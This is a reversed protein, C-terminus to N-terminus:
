KVLHVLNQQLRQEMRRALLGNFPVSGPRQRRQTRSHAFTPPAPFPKYKPPPFPAYMPPSPQMYEKQNLGDNGQQETDGPREYTDGSYQHNHSAAGGEDYSAVGEANSYVSNPQEFSHQDTVLGTSALSLGANARGTSALSERILEDVLAAQEFRKGILAEVSTQVFRPSTVARLQQHQHQQQDLQHQQHQQQIPSASYFTTSDNPAASNFSKSSTSYFSSSLPATQSRSAAARPSIDQQWPEAEPPMGVSSMPVYTGGQPLRRKSSIGSVTGPRLTRLSQLQPKAQRGKAKYRRINCTSRRKTVARFQPRAHIPMSTVGLQIEPLQVDVQMEMEMDEVEAEEVEKMSQQPRNLYQQGYVEELELQLSRDQSRQWHSQQQNDRHCFQNKLKEGRWRREEASKWTSAAPAHHRTISAPMQRSTQPSLDGGVSSNASSYNGDAFVNQSDDTHLVIGVCQPHGPQQVEWATDFNHIQLAVAVGGKEQPQAKVRIHPELARQTAAPMEKASLVESMGEEIQDELTCGVLSQLLDGTLSMPDAARVRSQVAESELWLREANKAVDFAHLAQDTLAIVHSPIEASTDAGDMGSLERMIMMKTREEHRGYAGLIMATAGARHVKPFTPGDKADMFQGWQLGLLSMSLANPQWGSDASFTTPNPTLPTSSLDAHQLNFSESKTALAMLCEFTPKYIEGGWKSDKGQWYQMLENAAEGAAQQGQGTFLRLGEPLCRCRAHKMESIDVLVRKKHEEKSVGQVVGRLFALHDNISISINWTQVLKLFLLIFTGLALQTKGQSHTNWDQEHISDLQVPPLQQVPGGVLLKLVRTHLEFFTQKKISRSSQAYGTALGSWLPELIKSAEMHLKAADKTPDLLTSRKEEKGAQPAYIYELIKAAAGIELLNLIPSQTELVNGWVSVAKM